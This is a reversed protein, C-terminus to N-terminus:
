VERKFQNLIEKQKRGMDKMLGDEVGKELGRIRLIIQAQSAESKKDGLQRDLTEDAFMAIGRGLEYAEGESIETLIVGLLRYKLYAKVRKKIGM